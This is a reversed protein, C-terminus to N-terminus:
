GIAQDGPSMPFDGAQPPASAIQRLRPGLQLARQQIFQFRRPSRAQLLAPDNIYTMVTEPLDESPHTTMYASIPQEVWTQQNWNARTIQYRADPMSGAAIATSVAAVGMDYLRTSSGASWGVARKFDDMFQPDPAPSASSGYKFTGESQGVSSLNGEFKDLDKKNENRTYIAKPM